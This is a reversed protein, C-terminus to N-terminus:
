FALWKVKFYVNPRESTEKVVHCAQLRWELHLLFFVMNGFEVADAAASLALWRKDHICIRCAALTWKTALSWWQRALLHEFFHDNVLVLLLDRLEEVRWDQLADYAPTEILIRLIPWRCFFEQKQDWIFIVRSRCKHCSSVALGSIASLRVIHRRWLRLHGFRGRAKEFSKM